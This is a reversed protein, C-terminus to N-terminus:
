ITFISVIMGMGVKKGEKRGEKRGEVKRVYQAIRGVYKSSLSKMQPSSQDYLGKTLRDGLKPKRLNEDTTLYISPSSHM